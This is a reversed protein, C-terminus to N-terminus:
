KRVWRAMTYPAGEKIYKNANPGLDARLRAMDVSERGKMEVSRWVKGKGDPIGGIRTTVDKCLSIVRECTDKGRQAKLLVDLLVDPPTTEDLGGAVFPALETEAVSPPLLYEPCYLRSYCGRCHAGTAYEGLNLAAHIVREALAAAEMSFLDVTEGWKWKGDEAIWLGLSMAQCDMKSAYAFGYGALQLTDLDSTFAGKKIDAVVAIRTGDLEVVAAGDLTGCTIAEPDDYDCYALESTLGVPLEREFDEWRLLVHGMDLPTPKHWTKIHDREAPTLGLLETHADKGSCLAHFAKSLAAARGAGHQAALVGAQGCFETLPTISIRNGRAM